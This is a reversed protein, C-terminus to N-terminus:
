PDLWFLPQSENKTLIVMFSSFFIFILIGLLIANINLKEDATQFSKMTEVVTFDQLRLVFIEM